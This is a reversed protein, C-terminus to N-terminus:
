RVLTRQGSMRSTPTAVQALERPVAAALVTLQAIAGRAALVRSGAAEPGRLDASLSLATADLDQIGALLVCHLGSIGTPWTSPGAVDRLAPLDLRDAHRASLPRCDTVPASLVARWQSQLFALRAPVLRAVDAATPTKCIAAHLAWCSARLRALKARLGYIRGRHPLPITSLM